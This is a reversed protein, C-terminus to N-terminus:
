LCYSREGQHRAASASVKPRIPQAASSVAEQDSSSRHRKLFDRQAAPVTGDVTHLPAAMNLQPMDSLDSPSHCSIVALAAFVAM